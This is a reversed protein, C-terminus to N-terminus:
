KATGGDMGLVTRLETRAADLDARFGPQQFLVAALASGAGM